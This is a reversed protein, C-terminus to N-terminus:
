DDDLEKALRAWLDNPIQDFIAAPLLMMIERCESLLKLRRTATALANDRDELADKWSELASLYSVRWNDANNWWKKAAQKWVKARHQLGGIIPTWPTEILYGYGDRFRHVRRHLPIEKDSV